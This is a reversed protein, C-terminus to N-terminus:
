GEDRELEATVFFLRAGGGDEVGAGRMMDRVRAEREPSRVTTRVHHGADLLQLIVHSGVFGSGGTVLVTHRTHGTTPAIM